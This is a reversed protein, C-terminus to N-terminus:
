RKAQRHTEADLDEKHSHRIILIKIGLVPILPVSDPLCVRFEPPRREGYRLM